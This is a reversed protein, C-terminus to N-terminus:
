ESGLYEIFNKLDQLLIDDSKEVNFIYNKFNEMGALYNAQQLISCPVFNENIYIFLNANVENESRSIYSAYTPTDNWKSLLIYVIDDDQSKFTHFIFQFNYTSLKIAWIPCDNLKDPLLFDKKLFSKNFIGLEQYIHSIINETLNM